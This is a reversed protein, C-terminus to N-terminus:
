GQKESAPTAFKQRQLKEAPIGLAEELEGAKPWIVAQARGTLVWWAATIPNWYPEPIARVYRGDPLGARVEGSGLMDRLRHVGWPINRKSIDM